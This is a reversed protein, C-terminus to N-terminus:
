WPSTSSSPLKIKRTTLSTARKGSRTRGNTSRKLLTYEIAIRTRKDTVERPGEYTGSRLGGDASEPTPVGGNELSDRRVAWQKRQQSPPKFDHLGLPRNQAQKRTLFDNSTGKPKGGTIEFKRIKWGNQVSKKKKKCPSLCPGRKLWRRISTPKGQATQSLPRRRQDEADAKPGTTLFWTVTATHISKQTNQEKPRRTRKPALVVSNKNSHSQQIIQLRTNISVKLM